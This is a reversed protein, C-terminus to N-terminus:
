QSMLSDVNWERQRKHSAITQNEQQLNKPTKLIKYVLKMLKKDPRIQGPM